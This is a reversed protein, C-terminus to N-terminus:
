NHKSCMEVGDAGKRVRERDAQAERREGVSAAEKESQRKKDECKAHAYIQTM